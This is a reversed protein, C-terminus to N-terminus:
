QKGEWHVIRRSLYTIGRDSILGILGILIIGVFVDSTKFFTSADSIVFGLGKDGGLLESAVLISLAAALAVRLGVVIQPASAPFVVRSFVQWPSAGLSRAARIKDQPCNAVGAQTNMMVVLMAYYFMILIKSLEGIGFWLIFLPIFALPPIPRVIEFPVLCFADIWPYLGRLLGVAVGCVAALGFAVIVRYLSTGIHVFINVAAYGNVFVDRLAEAIIWPSPLLIREALGFRTVLDWALLLAVPSLITWFLRVATPSLRSM